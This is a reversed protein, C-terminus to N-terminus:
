IIGLVKKSLGEEKGKRDLVAYSESLINTDHPMSFSLANELSVM